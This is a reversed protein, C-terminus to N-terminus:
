GARGTLNLPEPTRHRSLHPHLMHCPDAGHAAFPRDGAVIDAVGVVSGLAAPVRIQLGNTRDLNEGAGGATTGSTLAVPGGGPSVLSTNAPADKGELRIEFQSAVTANANWADIVQQASTAGPRVQVFITNPGGGSAGTNGTVVNVDAFSNLAAPDYALDPLLYIDSNM